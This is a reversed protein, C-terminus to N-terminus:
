QVDEVADRLRVLPLDVNESVLGAEGGRRVGEGGADGLDVLFDVQNRLEGDPLVDGEAVLRSLPNADVELLHVPVGVGNQFREAATKAAAVVQGAEADALHLHYDDRLGEEVLRLYDREVLRGRGQRLRLRVFQEVRYRLQLPLADGHEVDAVLQVFDELQGVAGADEPVAAVDQRGLYRLLSPSNMRTSSVRFM